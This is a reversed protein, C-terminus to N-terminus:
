GDAAAAGGGKFRRNSGQKLLDSVAVAAGMTKASRDADVTSCVLDLVVALEMLFTGHHVYEGASVGMGMAFPSALSGGMMPSAGGAGVPSRPLTGTVVTVKPPGPPPAPSSAGVPDGAPTGGDGGGGPGSGAGAAAAEDGGGGGGSAVEGEEDRVTRKRVTGSMKERNTARVEAVLGVVELFEMFQMKTHEDTAMEDPYQLTPVPTSPAPTPNCPDRAQGTSQHPAM